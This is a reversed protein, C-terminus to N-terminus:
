RILDGVRIEVDAKPCDCISVLGVHEVVNIQAIHRGARLVTLVSASNPKRKEDEPWRVFVRRQSQDVGVVRGTVTQQSESSRLVTVHAYIRIPSHQHIESKRPASLGTVVFYTNPAVELGKSNWSRCTLEPLCVVLSVEPPQQAEGPNPKWPGDPTCVVERMPRQLASVALNVELAVRDGGPFVMAAMGATVGDQIEAIKPVAIPAGNILPFELDKVYRTKNGISVFARQGNQALVSPRAIIERDPSAADAELRAAFEEASLVEVVAREVGSGERPGGQVVHFDIRVQTFRLQRIQDLWARVEKLTETPGFVELGRRLENTQRGNAHRMTAYEVVHVGTVKPFEKAITEQLWSERFPLSGPPASILRAAFPNAAVELAKRPTLHAFLANGEGELLYWLREGEISQSQNAAKPAESQASLSLSALAVFTASALIRITRATM